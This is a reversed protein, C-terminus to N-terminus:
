HWALKDDKRKCFGPDVHWREELVHVRSPSIERLGILSGQRSTVDSFSRKGSHVSTLDRFWSPVPVPRKGPTKAKNRPGFCCLYSVSLSHGQGM